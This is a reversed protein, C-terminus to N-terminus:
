IRAAPSCASSARLPASLCAPRAQTPVHPSKQRPLRSDSDAYSDQTSRAACVQLHDADTFAGERGQFASYLDIVPVGMDKAVKATAPMVVTACTHQKNLVRCAHMCAALAHTLPGVM